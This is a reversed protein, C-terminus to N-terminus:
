QLRTPVLSRGRMSMILFGAVAGAAILMFLSSNTFSIDLSGLNLPFLRKIEFQQIPDPM